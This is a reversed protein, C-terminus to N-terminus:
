TSVGVLFPIKEKEEEGSLHCMTVARKNKKRKEKKVGAISGVFVFLLLQKARLRFFLYYFLLKCPHRFSRPFVDLTRFRYVPTLARADSNEEAARTGTAGVEGATNSKKLNTSVDEDENRPMGDQQQQQQHKAYAYASTAATTTTSTTDRSNHAAAGKKKNTRWKLGRRKGEWSISGDNEVRSDHKDKDRKRGGGEEEQMAEPKKKQRQSLFTLFRLGKIKNNNNNRKVETKDAGPDREDNDDNGNHTAARMPEQQQGSGNTKGINDINKQDNTTTTAAHKQPKTKLREKM